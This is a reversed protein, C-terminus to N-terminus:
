LHFGEFIFLDFDGLNDKLDKDTKITWAVSLNKYLYRCIKGSLNSKDRYDYAIFHPKTIINFFLYQVMKYLLNFNDCKLNASLQGRMIQPKNQKYWVLVMPNFSEICYDGNYSELIKDVKSCVKKYDEYIKFEIIIPTKGNVLELVDKFLPIKENSDLLNFERLQEYTYDRVNGKTNCMRDTTEDHFVVVQLDKTLQVDLEMGYGNKVALEFAKLSNEPVKNNKNHYGRHAYNYKKLNNTIDIKKMSPMILILYIIIVMIISSIIIQM